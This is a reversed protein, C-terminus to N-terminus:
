NMPLCPTSGLAAAATLVPPRFDGRRHYHSRRAAENRDCIWEAWRYHFDQDHRTRTIEGYLRALGTLTLPSGTPRARRHAIANACAALLSLSIWRRVSIWKRMQYQDLGFCDEADQFTTEIPWRLGAIRILRALGGLADDPLYTLYYAYEDKRRNWRVLPGREGEAGTSDLVLYDWAY